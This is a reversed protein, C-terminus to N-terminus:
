TVAIIKLYINVIPDLHAIILSSPDEPLLDRWDYVYYFTPKVIDVTIIDCFVPITLM